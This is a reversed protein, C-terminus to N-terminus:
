GVSGIKSLVKSSDSVVIFIDRSTYSDDILPTPALAVAYSAGDPAWNLASASGPLDQTRAESTDLDLIWVRTEPVSEEYVVAKFGKLELEEKREPPADAALFAIRKGDPAPYISSISNVHTFKEVAEGGATSIEFLSNFKAEPDRQALFYLSEGTVSWAISSIEIEGTVYPRSVGDFGVIHLERYARGDDDEYLLRPVSLLYAIQDDDPSLRVDSVRKLSVVDELSLADSQAGATQICAFATLLFVCLTRSLQRAVTNM